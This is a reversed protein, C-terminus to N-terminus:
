GRVVVIDEGKKFTVRIKGSIPQGFMTPPEFSTFLLMNGIKDVIERGVNGQTCSYDTIQGNRDITLVMEIEDGQFGFPPTDIMVGHPKYFGLLYAPVDTRADAARITLTPTIMAFLFFASVIGGAFPIAVPRMLNDIALRLGIRWREWLGARRRAAEHSAIVKLESALEAPVPSSPLNRLLRRLEMLERSRAACEQCCGLHQVVGEYEQAYLKGDLFASLSKQVTACSM